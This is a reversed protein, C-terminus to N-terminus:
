LEDSLRRTLVNLVDGPLIARVTERPTPHGMADGIGVMRGACPECMLMPKTWILYAIAVSDCDKTQCLLEGDENLQPESTSNM